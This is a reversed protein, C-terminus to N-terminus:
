ELPVASEAARAVPEFERSCPAVAAIMRDLIIRTQERVIGILVDRGFSDEADEAWLIRYDLSVKPEFPKLVLGEQLFPVVSFADVMTVGVGVAAMAAAASVLRCEAVERPRVGARLLVSNITSQSLEDRSLAIFPEGDLDGPEIMDREALPNDVTMACYFRTKVLPASRVGPVRALHIGLGIDAQRSAVLGLVSGAVRSHISLTQTRGARRWALAVLPLLSLTLVPMSAIMVRKPERHRLRDCLTAIERIGVFIREAEEYLQEAMPTPQLRGRVRTFLPFGTLREMQSLLRSIGPQSMGLLAGAGTVSGSRMIARFVELHRYELGTRAMTERAGEFGM